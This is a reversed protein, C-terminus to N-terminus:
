EEYEGTWRMGTVSGTQYQEVTIKILAPNDMETWWLGVGMVVNTETNIHAYPYNM